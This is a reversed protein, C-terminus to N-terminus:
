LSHMAVVTATGFRLDVPLIWVRVEDAEVKKAM